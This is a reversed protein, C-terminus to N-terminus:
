RVQKRLAAVMEPWLRYDAEQYARWPDHIREAGAIAKQVLAYAQSPDDGKHVLSALAFSGSQAGPFVDLASRFASAAGTADGMALRARGSFYRSLYDLFPDDTLPEVRTLQKWADANRGLRLYTHGLRM